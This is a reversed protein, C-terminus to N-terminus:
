IGYYENAAHLLEELYEGVTILSEDNTMWDSPLEKTLIQQGTKPDVLNANGSGLDILLHDGTAFSIKRM